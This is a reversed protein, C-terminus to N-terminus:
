KDLTIRVANMGKPGKELEFAVMNGEAIEEPANSIHFFYKDVTGSQKIFGFGKDSNFFEVRGKLIPDKVDEKKPTSVAIAEIDVVTKQTPDPPTDTIM